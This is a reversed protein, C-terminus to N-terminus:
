SMADIVFIKADNGSTISSSLLSEISRSSLSPVSIGCNFFEFLDLM